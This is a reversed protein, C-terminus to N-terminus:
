LFYLHVKATLGFIEHFSTKALQTHYESRARTDSTHTDKNLITTTTTTTRANARILDLRHHDCSLSWDSQLPLIDWPFFMFCVFSFTTYACTYIYRFCNICGGLFISFFSYM